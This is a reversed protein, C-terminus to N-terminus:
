ALSPSAEHLLEGCRYTGEGSVAVLLWVTHLCMQFCLYLIHICDPDRASVKPRPGACSRRPMACPRFCFSSWRLLWMPGSLVGRSQRAEEVEEPADEEADEEQSVSGVNLGLRGLGTCNSQQTLKSFTRSSGARRRLCDTRQQWYGAHVPSFLITICPSALFLGSNRCEAQKRCTDLRLSM